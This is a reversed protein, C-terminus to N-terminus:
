VGAFTVTRHLADSASTPQYSRSPSWHVFGKYHGIVEAAVPGGRSPAYHYILVPEAPPGGRAVWMYSVTTDARGPEGMVRVSTEDVQLVPGSRLKRQMAELVPACAAAAALMWDAMTSRRLDVDIRAFQSQQRYLPLADCYKATAIFALLEPTAIGKPILTPPAPAIRV